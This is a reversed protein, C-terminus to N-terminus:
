STWKYNRWVNKKKKEFKVGDDDIVEL